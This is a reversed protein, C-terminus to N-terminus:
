AAEEQKPQLYKAAFGRDLEAVRAMQADLETM